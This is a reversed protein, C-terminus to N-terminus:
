IVFHPQRILETPLADLQHGPDGLDRMLERRTPQCVAVEHM